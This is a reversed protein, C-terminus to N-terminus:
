KRMRYVEPVRFFGKPSKTMEADVCSNYALMMDKCKEMAVNGVDTNSEGVPQKGHEYFCTFFKTAANECPKPVRPFNESMRLENTDM